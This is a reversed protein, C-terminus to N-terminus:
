ARECGLLQEFCAPNCKCTWWRLRGCVEYEKLTHVTCKGTVTNQHIADTHDSEFLEKDGHFGQLCPLHDFAPM